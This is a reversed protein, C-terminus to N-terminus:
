LRLGGGCLEARSVGLNVLLRELGARDQPAYFFRRSHIGVMVLGLAATLVPWGGGRLGVWAFYSGLGVGLFDLATYPEPVGLWGGRLEERLLPNM